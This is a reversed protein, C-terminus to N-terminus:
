RRVPLLHAIRPPIQKFTVTFEKRVIAEPTDPFWLNSGGTVLETGTEGADLRVLDNEFANARLITASRVLKYRQDDGAGARTLELETEAGGSDKFAAFDMAGREMVLLWVTDAALPTASKLAKYISDHLDQCIARLDHPKIKLHTREESAEEVVLNRRDEEILRTRALTLAECVGARDTESIGIKAAIEKTLKWDATIARGNEELSHALEWAEEPPKGALPLPAYARGVAPPLSAATGPRTKTQPHPEGRLAKLRERARTAAREASGEDELLLWVGAGSLLLIGGLVYVRMRHDRNLATEPM